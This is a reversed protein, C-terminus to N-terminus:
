SIMARRYEALRERCEALLELSAEDSYYSQLLNRPANLSGPQEKNLSARFEKPRCGFCRQFMQTMYKLDSFGSAAAIDSISMTQNDMLRVAHEFRMNSLYQQFSIGFNETFFHSLHTPTIGEKEAVDTLRIPYQYYEDIYAFLRGMRQTIKQKAMYEGESIVENPVLSILLELLKTARRICRLEFLDEGKIYDEAANIICEWVRVSDKKEMQECVDPSSFVTNHMRPFYDRLFHSSIQTIITTVNGGAADIEHAESSNILVITGPTVPIDGRSRRITAEGKIVAIIEIDNHLHFNRYTINNLFTNFHKLKSYKVIEYENNM